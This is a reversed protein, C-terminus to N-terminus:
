KVFTTRFVAEAIVMELLVTWKIRVPEEEKEDEFESEEPMPQEESELIVIWVWESPEREDIPPEAEGPIPAEAFLEQSEIVIKFPERDATPAIPKPTPKASYPPVEKRL